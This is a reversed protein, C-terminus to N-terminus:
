AEKSKVAILQCFSDITNLETIDVSEFDIEIDFEREMRMLFNMMQLSSLYILPEADVSFGPKVEELIAVIKDIM